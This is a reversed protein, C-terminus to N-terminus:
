STEGEHLDGHGDGIFLVHVSSGVMKAAEDATSIVAIQAIPTARLAALAAAADGLEAARAAIVAVREGPHVVGATVADGVVAWSIGTVLGVSAGLADAAAGVVILRDTTAPVIQAVRLAVRRAVSPRSLWATPDAHGGTAVLDAALEEPDLEADHGLADIGASM